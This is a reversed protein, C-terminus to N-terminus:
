APVKRPAVQLLREGAAKVSGSGEVRWWHEGELAITFTAEWVGTSIPSFSLAATTADPRLIKGTVTDPDALVGARNKFTAQLVVEDGIDYITKAM